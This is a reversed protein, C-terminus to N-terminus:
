PRVYAIEFRTQRKWDGPKEPDPVEFVGGTATALGLSFRERLRHTVRGTADRTTVVTPIVTVEFGSIREVVPAGAEFRVTNGGRGPLELVGGASLPRIATLKQASDNWAYMMASDACFARVEGEPQEPSLRLRMRVCDRRGGFAADHAISDITWVTETNGVVYIFQTGPRLMSGPRAGGSPLSAERPLERCGVRAYPYDIGRLQGNRTGEVRAALSDRGAMRYMVRQPFDHKANEFTIDETGVKIARFEAPAQRAPQAAYVLTDGQAYIRIFEHERVAGARVSRSMGLMVGGRPSMWQEDVVRDGATMQWCGALWSLRDIPSQAALSSALLVGAASLPLRM